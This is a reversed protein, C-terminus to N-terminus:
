ATPYGTPAVGTAAKRFSSVMNTKKELLVPQRGDSIMERAPDATSSSIM